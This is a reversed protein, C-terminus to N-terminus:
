GLCYALQYFSIKIQKKKWNQSIPLSNAKKGTLLCGLQPNKIIKGILRLFTKVSNSVLLIKGRLL